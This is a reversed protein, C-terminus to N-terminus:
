DLSLGQRSMAVIAQVRDTVGLARLVPSVHKKITSESIALEKSIVKNPKGQVVARFVEIQRRTLGLEDLHRAATHAVVHAGSAASLTQPVHIQGDFIRRVAQLMEDRTYTKPVYGMAGGVLCANATAMDDAASVVVVPTGPAGARFAQLSALGTSDRLRLDLFALETPDNAIAMAIADRCSDARLVTIGKRLGQVAAELADGFLPHDDVILVNV